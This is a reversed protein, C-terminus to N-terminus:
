ATVGLIQLASGVAILPFGVWVERRPFGFLNEAYTREKPHLDRYALVLAGALTLALGTILLIKAGTM